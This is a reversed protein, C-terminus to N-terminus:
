VAAVQPFQQLDHLLCRMAVADPPLQDLKPLPFERQGLIHLNQMAAAAGRVGGELVLNLKGPELADNLEKRLARLATHREHEKAVFSRGDLNYSRNERLYRIAEVYEAVTFAKHAHPLTCGSVVHRGHSLAELAMRSLACDVRPDIIVTARHIARVCDTYESLIEVNPYEALQDHDSGLVLMRIGPLRDALADVLPGGHFARRGSPLYCLVTFTSPLAQPPAVSSINASIVPLAAAKVGLEELGHAIDVTRCLQVTGMRALARAFERTPQHFRAWILDRGTWYRIIQIGSMRATVLRRLLANDRQEFTVLHIIDPRSSAEAPPRETEASDFSTRVAAAALARAHHSSVSIGDDQEGIFLVHM